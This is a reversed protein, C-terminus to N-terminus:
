FQVKVNERESGETKFFERSAFGTIGAVINTPITQISTNYELVSDNYFQRSYAIKNETNSLEEQLMKFNENARLQPYNEAVAFLSKLTGSLMSDAKAKEGVTQGSATAARAKTVNEFLEKEHKAYGKVSEVLNPILDYRRKLQVDIQSWANDIRVKKTVLGNFALIIFLIIAIALVVLGMLIISFIDM